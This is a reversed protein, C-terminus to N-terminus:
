SLGLFGAVIAVVIATIMSRQLMELTFFYPFIEGPMLPAIAELFPAIIDLLVMGIGM